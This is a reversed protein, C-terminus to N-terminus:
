LSIVDNYIALLDKSDIATDAIDYASTTGDALYVIFSKYKGYTKISNVHKGHVQLVYSNGVRPMGRKVVIDYIALIREKIEIPTM